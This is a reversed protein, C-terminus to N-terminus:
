RRLVGIALDVRRYGCRRRGACPLAGRTSLRKWGGRERTKKLHEVLPLTLAGMEVCDKTFSISDNTTNHDDQQFTPLDAAHIM